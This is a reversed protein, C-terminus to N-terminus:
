SRLLSETFELVKSLEPLRGKGEGCALAGTEPELIKYGYTQLTKLNNQVSKHEWMFNNMSPAIGVPRRTALLVALLLEDAIGMSAKAIFDASAPAILVADSESALCIHPPKGDLLELCDSLMKKGTVTELVLRSVFDLGCKTVCVRVDAKKKVLERILDVMKYAAIGGTIGVLIKKGEFSM